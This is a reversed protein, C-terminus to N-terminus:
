SRNQERRCVLGHRGSPANSLSTTDMVSSVFSRRCLLGCEALTNRGTCGVCQRVQTSGSRGGARKIRKAPRALTAGRLRRRGAQPPAERRGTRLLAARPSPGVKKNPQVVHDPMASLMDRRSGQSLLVWSLFHRALGVM